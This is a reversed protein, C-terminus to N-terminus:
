LADAVSRTVAAVDAIRRARPSFAWRPIKASAIRVDFGGGADIRAASKSTTVDGMTRHSRAFAHVGAPIAPAFRLDLLRAQHALGAEVQERDLHHARERRAPAAPGGREEARREGGDIRDLQNLPLAYGGRSVTFDIFGLAPTGTVHKAFISRTPNSPASSSGDSVYQSSNVSLSSRPGCVHSKLTVRGSHCATTTASFYVIVGSSPSPGRM